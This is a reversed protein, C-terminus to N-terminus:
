VSGEFQIKRGTFTMEAYHPYTGMTLTLAPVSWLSTACSPFLATLDDMITELAHFKPPMGRHIDSVRSQVYSM